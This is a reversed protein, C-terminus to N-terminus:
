WAYLNMIIGSVNACPTHSFSNKWYTQIRILQSIRCLENIHLASMLIYCTAKAWRPLHCGNFCEVAGSATSFILSKLFSKDIASLNLFRWILQTRAKEGRWDERIERFLKMSVWVKGRDWIWSDMRGLAWSCVTVGCLVCVWLGNINNM